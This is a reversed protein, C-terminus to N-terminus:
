LGASILQSGFSCLLSAYQEEGVSEIITLLDCLLITSLKTCKHEIINLIKAYGNIASHSVTLSELSAGFAYLFSTLQPSAPFDLERIHSCM